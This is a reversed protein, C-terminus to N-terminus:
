LEVILKNLVADISVLDGVLTTVKKLEEKPDIQQTTRYAQSASHAVVGRSQGYSNLDALLVIDLDDCDVGIPLLMGMINEEKIGHNQELVRHFDSIALDIKKSLKTKEDWKDSQSPQEPYISDPPKEMLRGSFALLALIIKSVRNKEKWAKAATLATDWARDELYAEIEAHVLVRYALTKTVVQRSYRGSRNFRMPLLDKRLRTTEEKLEKYRTSITM